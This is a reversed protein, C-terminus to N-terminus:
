DLAPLGSTFCYEKGEGLHNVLMKLVSRLYSGQAASLNGLFKIFLKVYSDDRGLWESNLISQVLGSCSQDLSAINSLLGLLHHRLTTPTPIDYPLSGDEERKRPDASFVDKVQNYAESGGGSLHRQIARRVEELVVAASKESEEGNEGRSGVTSRHEEPGLQIRVRKRPPSSRDGGMDSSLSSSRSPPVDIETTKRKLGITM